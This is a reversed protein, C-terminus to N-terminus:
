KAVYTYKHWPSQSNIDIQLIMLVKWRSHHIHMLQYAPKLFCVLPPLTTFITYRIHPIQTPRLPSSKKQM